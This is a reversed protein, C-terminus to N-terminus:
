CFFLNKVLEYILSVNSLAKSKSNIGTKLILQNKKYVDVNLSFNNKNNALAFKYKLQM